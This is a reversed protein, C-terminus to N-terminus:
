APISYDQSRDRHEILDSLSVSVNVFDSEYIRDAKVEVATMVCYNLNTLSISLIKDRFFQKDLAWFDPGAAPNKTFM